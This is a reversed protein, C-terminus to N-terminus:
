PAPPDSFVKGQSRVQGIRCVTKLHCYRTCHEDDNYVPFQGQRINAVIREIRHAIEGCLSNWVKTATVRGASIQSIELQPKKGGSITFGNGQVSWLGAALPVAEDSGLLLEAAALVYLPLQLQKGARVKELEVKASAGTKYDIVNFVVADGVRGVDIRDIRGTFRLTQEGIRYLFPADTSRDSQTEDEGSRREPGFRVELHTPTPPTDLHRWLQRYALHQEALRESWSRIQRREIERLAGEVGHQAGAAYVADVRETFREVFAAKAQDVALDSGLDSLVAVAEQHLQALAEHLLSGRRRPDSQLRAEPPEELGLLQEGFFKFPCHAYSELQSPSWHHKAGYRKSLTTRIAPSSLIGEHGGFTEWTGRSAIAELGDLIARGVGVPSGPSAIRALPEVEGALARDVAIRRLARQSYATPNEATLGGGIAGLSLETRSVAQGQLCRELEAVYPSPPLAQAKDDLAPYSLWLGHVPQTVLQYFLLMEDAPGRPAPVDGVTGTVSPNEAAGAAESALPSAFARENMGVLWLHDPRTGRASEASVIRVRGAAAGTAGASTELAVENALEIFERLGVSEERWGAWRDVQEVERLGRQWLRWSAWDMAQRPDSGDTAILMGLDTALLEVASMWAAAARQPLAALRRALETLCDHAAVARSWGARSPLDDHRRVAAAARDAMWRLETLLEMQGTPVQASRVQYEVDGRRHPQADFWRLNRDTVVALVDRYPWGDAHMRLVRLVSRVLPTSALRPTSESHWAVGHDSLAMQLRVAYENLSRVAIVLREAVGGSLLCQKVQRAVSDIESEVSSAPTIHIRPAGELTSGAMEAGPSDVRFMAQELHAMAPWKDSAPCDGRLVWSPEVTALEALRAHTALTKAFLHERAHPPPEAPLTIVMRQTHSTLRQLIDLQAATFDTFGDVAVLRYRMMKEPAERMTDRAAWFLGEDDYLGGQALRQQYRSYVRAMERQRPSPRSGLNALVDEAWLDHRKWHAIQQQVLSVFGARSSMERYYTLEGERVAEEIVRRLLRRRQASTLPRVRVRCSVLLRTAFRAFTTVGPDLVAAAGRGASAGCLRAQVAWVATLHPAIWVVAEGQSLDRRALAEQYWGSLRDTKGSRAPGLLLEINAVPM